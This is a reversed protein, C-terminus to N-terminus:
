DGFSLYQMVGSIHPNWFLKIFNKKLISVVNCLSFNDYKHM